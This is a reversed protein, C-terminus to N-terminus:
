MKDYTYKREDQPRYEYYANSRDECLKKACMTKVLCDRCPCRKRMHFYLFVCHPDKGSIENELPCGRCDAKMM